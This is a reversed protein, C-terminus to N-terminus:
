VQIAGHIYHYNENLEPIFLLHSGDETIVLEPKM